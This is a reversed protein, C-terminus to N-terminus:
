RSRFMRAARPASVDDLHVVAVAQAFVRAIASCDEAAELVDHWPRHLASVPLGALRELETAAISRGVAGLAARRELAPMQQQNTM